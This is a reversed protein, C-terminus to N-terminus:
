LNPHQKFFDRVAQPFLSKNARYFDALAKLRESRSFTRRILKGPNGRQPRMHNGAADTQKRLHDNMEKHLKQHDKRPLDTLPQKKKGGM